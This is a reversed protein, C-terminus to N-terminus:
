EDLGYGSNRIIDRSAQSFLAAWFAQAADNEDARRLLAADQRIPPAIGELTRVHAPKLLPLLSAAVFAIDANGTAFVSAVQGVNSLLVPRFKATDLNMREMATTAALGYPAVTPDALAVTRGEFAERAADLDVPITSVLVLQGLAYTRVARAQGGNLLNTPRKDDAALFVDYPAGNVIQAYIQGTSGHVIRVEHGTEAEFAAALTEATTAFNSAVAVTVEGATLPQALSFLFLFILRLRTM